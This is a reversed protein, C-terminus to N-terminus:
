YDIQLHLADKLLKLSPNKGAMMDFIENRSMVPKETAPADETKRIETTIRVLTGTQETFFDIMSNRQEKAYEETLENPAILRVEDTQQLEVKMASFQAYYVSKNEAQLRRKYQEYAEEVLQQTLEKKEVIVPAANNIAADIDGLINKTIRRAGNNQPSAPQVQRINNELVVEPEKAQSVEPKTEEQYSVPPVTRAPAPTTKPVVPPIVNNINKKKAQKQPNCYM